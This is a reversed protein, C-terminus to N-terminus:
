RNKTISVVGVRMTMMPLRVGNEDLIKRRRGDKLIETHFRKKINNEEKFGKDM